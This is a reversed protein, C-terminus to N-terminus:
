SEGQIVEQMPSGISGEGRLRNATPLQVARAVLVTRPMDNSNGDPVVGHDSRRWALWGWTVLAAAHIPWFAPVMHATWPGARLAVAMLIVGWGSLLLFDVRYRPWRALVVALAYYGPALLPVFWRISCCAGSYNRSTAAYLLWTTVCWAAAFLLTPFLAPHPIRLASDSSKSEASRVGCEASKRRVGCTARVAAPLLLILALNHGVFGRKGFLMDLAYAGFDFLSAHHWTGTLAAAQHPCGEWNFYEPVANAPGFTGGVTYNVAHHLALWPLAGALFWACASRRAYSRPKRREVRSGCTGAVLLGTCALLPPGAGLDIAYGLGALGGLALLRWRPVAQQLQAAQLMLASAVGLLLIHNNVHQVYVVAVTALAFSASVCVRWGLPLGVVKGLRFVCVAAVVYALGSSAVTMWWCFSEPDLRVSLGLLWQLLQYIVALLLAPVPSKDSYFHGGIALKDQTGKEVAAGRYPDPVRPDDPAPVAVFLSDDIALTGQDVLSEVTALRTGDNWSGAYPRASALAVGAAALIVVVLGFSERSFRV